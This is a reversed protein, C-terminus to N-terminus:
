QMEEAMLEITDEEVSSDAGGKILRYLDWATLAGAAGWGIPGGWWSAGLRTAAKPAITKLLQGPVGKRWDKWHLKAM